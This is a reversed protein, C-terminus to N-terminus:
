ALLNNTDASYKHFSQWDPPDKSRTMAEYIPAIDAYQQQLTHIDLGNSPTTRETKRIYLLDTTDLSASSLITDGNDLQKTMNNAAMTSNDDQM